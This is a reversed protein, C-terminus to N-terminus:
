VVAYAEKYNLFSQKRGLVGFILIRLVAGIRLLLKILPLFQPNHKQYFYIIGKYEGVTPARRLGKSSAQGIHIIQTEPNFVVGFGAKKARYCYEVEEVYMFINPDFGGVKDYVKRRLLFFAGTVWDLEKTKNFYFARPHYSKLLKNILPIDDIFLMWNIVRLPTPFFGGPMALKQDPGVIKAGVIGVESHNKLYDIQASVADEELRTDPNLILFYDGEAQKIGINCGQGFGVNEKNKVLRLNEAQFAFSQKMRFELNEIKEITKDKSANDVVIIEFPLKVYRILGDLCAIIESQSNYTVIVVSLSPKM